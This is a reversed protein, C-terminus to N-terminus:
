QWVGFHQCRPHPRRRDVHRYQHRGATQACRCYRSEGRLVALGSSRAARRDHGSLRDVTPSPISTRKFSQALALLGPSAPRTMSRAMSYTTAPGRRRRRGSLGLSRYLARIEHSKSGPWVALVNQSNFTRIANHLTADVSCGLPSPRSVRIRRRWPRERSISEQPASCRGRRMTRCGAKSRPAGAHADAAQLEFQAGSWTAQVANWGYGM